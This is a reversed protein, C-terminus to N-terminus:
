NPRDFEYDGKTISFDNRAEAARLNMGKIWWSCNLTNRAHDLPQFLHPFWYTEGTSGCADVFGCAEFAALYTPSTYFFDIMAAGEARAAEILSRLLPIVSGSDAVFDVLRVVREERNRVQEARFVLLGRVEEKRRAIFFRYQFIPIKEYRWILYEAERAPGMQSPAVEKWYFADWDLQKLHDFSPLQSVEIGRDFTVSPAPEVSCLRSLVANSFEEREPDVLRMFAAKEIPLLLRPVNRLVVWSLHEYLGEAVPTNIGALCADFNMRHQLEYLLSMALPGRRYEPHVWWASLHCGYRKEGYRNFLFPMYAFVGVLDKGDFAGKFTLGESFRRAYPNEYYQWLLLQRNRYFIHNTRWKQHFFQAALDAEQLTLDRQVVGSRM